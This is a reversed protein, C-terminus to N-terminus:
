KSRKHGLHGREHMRHNGVSAFAAGCFKCIYPKEGTHTNVHDRLRSNEVFGKGCFKCKFKKDSDSTHKQQFHRTERKKSIMEGCISCPIKEHVNAIHNALSIHSRYTNGCDPCAVNQNLIELHSKRHATLGFVAKGCIDCVKTGLKDKNKGRYYIANTKFIIKQCSICYLFENCSPIKM